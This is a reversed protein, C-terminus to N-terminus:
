PNFNFISVVKFIVHNLIELKTIQALVNEKMDGQEKDLDTDVDV